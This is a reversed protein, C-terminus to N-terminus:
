IFQFPKQACFPQQHIVRPFRFPLEKKAEPSWVAPYDNQDYITLAFVM